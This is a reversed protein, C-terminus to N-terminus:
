KANRRRTLLGAASIVLVSMMGPEPLNAPQTSNSQLEAVALNWQATLAASPDPIFESLPTNIATSNLNQALLGIDLFNVAGDYNFDGHMWDGHTSGLNQAVVGLDMMNVSGDLNADGALAPKIVLQNGVAITQGVDVGDAYGISWVGGGGNAITNAVQLQVSSSTLGTGTWIGGYYASKLYGRITAIPDATTGYNIILINNKTIDFSSGTNITLSALTAAGSGPALQAYGTTAANKGVILAGVGSIGPTAAAGLIVPAAAIGANIQFASNDAVSGGSPFAGISPIVLTGASITTGGTYTNAGNFTLPGAGAYTVAGTGSINNDVRLSGAGYIVVAANDLINGFVIGSNVGYGLQLVGGQVSVPSVTPDLFGSIQTIGASQTYQGTVNLEGSNIFVNGTNRLNGIITFVASNLTLSGSNVALSAISPFVVSNGNSSLVINAANTNIAAATSGGLIMTSNLDQEYTGGTLTTGVLNTLAGAAVQLVGGGTAQFTGSNTTVDNISLIQSAANAVVLGNNTLAANIQGYGSITHGSSQTLTGNLQALTGAYALQIQGPGSVVGGNFSLVSAATGLYPDNTLIVTGNNVLDGAVNVNVNTNISVTANNVVNSLTDTPTYFDGPITGTLFNIKGTGNSTRSGGSINNNDAFDVTSGTNAIVQGGANNVFATGGISGSIGAGDFNLNGGGSAEMTSHNTVNLCNIGLSTGSLNANVLGYNTLAGFLSAQGGQITHSAAQTLTGSVIPFSYTQASFPDTSGGPLFTLTGSGSLTGGSFHMSTSGAGMSVGLNIAGNDTLNGNVTLTANQTLTIMGNNTVSNLTNGYFGNFQIVGSGSTTLMGGSIAATGNVNVVCNNGALIEGATGQTISISNVSLTGFTAELLNNNTMANTQLALTTQYGSINGNADVIGNNILAANIQGQGQITHKVDQTLSGDLQALSGSSFLNLSGTGTLLGGDFILMSASGTQNSHVKIMGNNTLTAGAITLATGALMNLTGSTNINLTGVTVSTDLTVPFYLLNVDVTPSNPYTPTSWNSPATESAGTGVQSQSWNNNNPFQNGDFLQGNANQQYTVPTARALQASGAVLGVLGLARLQKRSINRKLDM